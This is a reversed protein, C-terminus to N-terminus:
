RGLGAERFLRRIEAIRRYVAARSLQLQRATEAVTYTKLAVAVVRLEAPLGAICRNMDLQLHLPEAHQEATKNVDKTPCPLRKRKEATRTRILNSSKNRMVLNVFTRPCSRAADYHKARRWVALLLEQKLDDADDSTFETGAILRRVHFGVDQEAQRCVDLFEGSQEAETPSILDPESRGSALQANHAVPVQIAPLTDDPSVHGRIRIAAYVDTASAATRNLM